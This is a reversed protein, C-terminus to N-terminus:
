SALPLMRGGARVSVAADPSRVNPTPKSECSVASGSAGENASTPFAGGLTAALRDGIGITCRRSPDVGPDSEM